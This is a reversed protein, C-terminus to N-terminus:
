TIKWFWWITWSAWFVNANNVSPLQAWTNQKHRQRHTFITSCDTVSIRINRSFKLSLYTVCSGMSETRNNLKKTYFRFSTFPSTVVIWHSLHCRSRVKSLKEVPVFPVCNKENIESGSPSRSMGLGIRFEKLKSKTVATSDVDNSNSSSRRSATLPKNVSNTNGM